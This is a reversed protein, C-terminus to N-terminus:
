LKQLAVGSQMMWRSYITKNRPSESRSGSTFNITSNWFSRPCPPAVAPKSHKGFTPSRRCPPILILCGRGGSSCVVGISHVSVGRDCYRRLAVMGAERCLNVLDAASYDDTEDVLEEILAANMSADAEMPLRKMQIELIAQRSAETPAPVHIIRDFRGPRLLADDVMDPRNTAGLVVVRDVSRDTGIGDMENLLASLLREQAGNSADAGSGMERKAFLAELEDFFILSPGLARANRFLERLRHESEGVYPSLLGEGGLGGSASASFFRLSCTAALVRAISTKSCGPPGYLLVGAPPQVQLRVLTDPYRIPWEVAQQLQRRISDLGGLMEWTLQSDLDLQYSRHMSPSVHKLAEDFHSKTITLGCAEANWSHERLADMAAEQCLLSLDAGVFGRTRRVIEDLHVDTALPFKQTLSRLIALRSTDSPVPLVIERELRGPRRIAPDIANPRNTAGVIVM